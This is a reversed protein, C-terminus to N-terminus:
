KVRELVVVPRPLFSGRAGGLITQPLGNLVSLEADNQIIVATLGTHRIPM